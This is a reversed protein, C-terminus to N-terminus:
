LKKVHNQISRTLIQYINKYNENQLFLLHSDITRIDNRIAPGTQAAQPELTKIKEVTESILPQLIEFPIDNEKCIESGIFYLHNVFNNVFVAAIHLAKRQPSSINFVHNSICKAINELTKYDEPNETELCIPIEKFDIEKNKSFTQLPYFVGRRNKSNINEISSSGSTHVVLKNEFNLESSIHRIADDTVSIIYVDADKILDLDNVFRDLVIRNSETQITRSYVQTIELLDSNNVAKILHQAVNGFGIVCIKIM